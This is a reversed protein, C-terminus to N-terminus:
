AGATTSSRAADGGVALTAVLVRDAGAARLALAAATATAGTTRVDDVLVVAPPARSAAFCGLPSTRRQLPDLTTQDPRDVTRRLLPVAAPGALLLPVDVGRRRLRRRSSPVWTLPWGAPLPLRGRLLVGLPWAAAHRGAVKLGHVADRVVGAYAFLGIAAIGEALRVWGLDPLLHIDAAARCGGCLGGAHPM